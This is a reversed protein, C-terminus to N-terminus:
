DPACDFIDHDKVIERLLAGVLQGVVTEVEPMNNILTHSSQPKPFRTDPELPDYIFKLDIKGNNLVLTKAADVNLRALKAKKEYKIRKEARICDCQNQVPAPHREMWDVSAAQEGRRCLFAETAVRPKPGKADVHGKKVYRLVHDAVPLHDGKNM